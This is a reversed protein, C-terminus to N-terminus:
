TLFEHDRRRCSRLNQILFILGENSGENQTGERFLDLFFICVERNTPEFRFKSVTSNQKVLNAIECTKNTEMHTDTNADTDADADADTDADTVHLCM